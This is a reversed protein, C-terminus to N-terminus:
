SGTEGSHPPKKDTLLRYGYYCAGLGCCAMLPGKWILGGIIQNMFGDALGDILWWTGIFACALGGVILRLAVVM